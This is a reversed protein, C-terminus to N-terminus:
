SEQGGQDTKEESSGTASDSSTSVKVSSVTVETPTASSSGDWDAVSSVTFKIPELINKDNSDKLDNVKITVGYIYSYGKAMQVATAAETDEVTFSVTYVKENNSDQPYRIYKADTSGAEKSVAQYVVVDFSITYKTKSSRNDEIPIIYSWGSKTSNGKSLGYSDYGTVSVANTETSAPYSADKTGIYIDKDASGLDTWALGKFDTGSIDYASTSTYNTTIFKGSAIAGKLQVNSIVIVANQANDSSSTVKLAVRSLLHNFNFGVPNNGSAAGTATAYAYVLDRQALNDQTFSITGTPDTASTALAYSIGNSSTPVPSLASFAYTNSAVWYQTNQYGWAGWASGDKTRTVAEENFIQVADSASGGAPTTFGWVAFEDINDADVEGTVTRTAKNVFSNFGIASTTKVEVV